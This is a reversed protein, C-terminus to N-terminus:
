TVDFLVNLINRTIGVPGIDDIGVQLFHLVSFDDPVPFTDIIRLEVIDDSRFGRRCRVIEGIFLHVRRVDHMEISHPQIVIPVQDARETMQVRDKAKVTRLLLVLDFPFEGALIVFEPQGLELLSRALM